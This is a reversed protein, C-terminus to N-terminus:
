PPNLFNSANNPSSMCVFDLFCFSFNHNFMTLRALLPPFDMCLKHLASLSDFFKVFNCNGYNIDDVAYHDHATVIVAVLHQSRKIYISSCFCRLQFLRLMPADIELNDFEILLDLLLQELLPCSALLGGGVISGGGVVVVGCIWWCCVVALGGYGRRRVLVGVRGLVGSSRWRLIVVVFWWM